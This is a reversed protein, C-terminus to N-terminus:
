DRSGDPLIMEVVFDLDPVPKGGVFTVSGSGTISGTAGELTGTGGTIEGDVPRSLM